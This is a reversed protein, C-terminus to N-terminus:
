ERVVSLKQTALVETGNLLTCFYIGTGLKTAQLNYTGENSPLQVTQVVRGRVDTLQLTPKVGQATQYTLQTQTTLPNPYVNFGITTNELVSADLRILEDCGFCQKVVVSSTGDVTYSLNQISLNEVFGGVLAITDGGLYEVMTSSSHTSSMESLCRVTGASDILLVIGNDTDQTSSHNVYNLGDVSFSARSSGSVMFLEDNVSELRNMDEAENGGINKLWIPSGNQDLRLVFLDNANSIVSMSGVTLEESFWGSVICGNKFPIVEENRVPGTGNLQIAWEANGATDLAAVFGDTGAVAVFNFDGVSLSGQFFGSVYVGDNGCSLSYAVDNDEGGGLHKLWVLEGNAKFKSIFIEGNALQPNLVSLSQSQMSLDNTYSGIVYLMGDKDVDIANVQSTTVESFQHIWDISGQEDIKMLLANESFGGNEVVFEQSDFMVTDIFQFAALVGGDTACLRSSSSLGVSKGTHVLWDVELNPSLKMLYLDSKVPHGFAIGDISHVGISFIEQDFFGSVYLENAEASYSSSVVSNSLNPGESSLGVAPCQARGNTCIVALCIVWLVHGIRIM